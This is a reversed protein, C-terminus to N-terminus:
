FLLCGTSKLLSPCCVGLSSFLSDYCHKYAQSFINKQQQKKRSGMAALALVYNTIRTGWGPCCPLLWSLILHAVPFYCGDMRMSSIFWHPLPSFFAASAFWESLTLSSFPLCNLAITQIKHLLSFCRWAYDEAHHATEGFIGCSLRLSQRRWFVKTKRGCKMYITMIYNNMRGKIYKCYPLAAYCNGNSTFFFPQPM